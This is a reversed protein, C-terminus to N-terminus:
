FLLYKGHFGLKEFFVRSFTPIQLLPYMEPSGLFLTAAGFRESFGLRIRDIWNPRHNRGNQRLLGLLAPSPLSRLLFPAGM